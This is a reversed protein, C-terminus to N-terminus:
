TSPSSAGEALVTEQQDEIEMVVDGEQDVGDPPDGHHEPSSGDTSPLPEQVWESTRVQTTHVVSGGQEGRNVTHEDEEAARRPGGSNPRSSSEEVPVPAPRSQRPENVIQKENAIVNARRARGGASTAGQSQRSAGSHDATTRANDETVPVEAIDDGTLPAFRSGSVNTTGNVTGKNATPGNPRGPPRREARTVIMWPGYPRARSAAAAGKFYGGPNPPPGQAESPRNQEDAMGTASDSFGDSANISDVLFPAANTGQGVVSDLYSKSASGRAGAPPLAGTPEIVPEDRSGTSAAPDSDIPMASTPTDHVPHADLPTEAVMTVDADSHLDEAHSSGVKAAPSSEGNSGVRVKSKKTSRELLDDDESSRQPSLTETSTRKESM